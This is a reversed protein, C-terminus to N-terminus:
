IRGPRGQGGMPQGHPGRGPMLARLEEADIRGDHDTDVQDFRALRATLTEALTLSGDHNSDANAILVADVTGVLRRLMMERMEDPDGGGPPPGMPMM